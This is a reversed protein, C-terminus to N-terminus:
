DNATLVDQRVWALLDTSALYRRAQECADPWTERFPYERCGDAWVLVDDLAVGAALKDLAQLASYVNGGAGAVDGSALAAPCSGTRAHAAALTPFAHAIQVALTIPHGPYVPFDLAGNHRLLYEM